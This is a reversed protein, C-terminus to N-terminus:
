RRCDPRALIQIEAELETIRDILVPEHSQSKKLEKELYVIRNTNRNLLETVGDIVIRNCDIERSQKEILAAAEMMLDGDDPLGIDIHGANILDKANARLQKILEAAEGAEDVSQGKRILTTSAELAKNMAIDFEDGVECSCEAGAYMGAPCNRDHETDAM